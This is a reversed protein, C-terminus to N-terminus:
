MALIAVPSGPDVDIQCEKYSVWKKLRKRTSNVTYFLLKKTKNRGKRLFVLSIFHAETYTDRHTHTHTHTDTYLKPGGRVIEM